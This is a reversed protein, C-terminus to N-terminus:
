SRQSSFRCEWYRKSNSSLYFLKLSRINTGFGCIVPENVHTSVNGKKNLDLKLGWWCPTYSHFDLIYFININEDFGFNVPDNLHPNCEQHRKRSGQSNRNFPLSVCLYDSIAQIRASDTTKATTPIPISLESATYTYACDEKANPHFIFPRSNHSVYFYDFITSTLTSFM